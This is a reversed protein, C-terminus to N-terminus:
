GRFDPCRELSSSVYMVVMGMHSRKGDDFKDTQSNIMKHQNEYKNVTRKLWEWHDNVVNVRRKLEDHDKGQSQSYQSYDDKM